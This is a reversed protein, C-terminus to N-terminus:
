ILSAEYFGTRGNLKINQGVSIVLEGNIKDDVIVPSQTFVTNSSTVEAGQKNRVLKNGTEIRCAILKTEFVPENYENLSLVHQWTATQNTYGSIM